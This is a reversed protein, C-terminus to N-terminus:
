SQKKRTDIAMRVEMERIAKQNAESFLHKQQELAAHLLTNSLKYDLQKAALESYLVNVEYLLQPSGIEEALRLAEKLAPASKDLQGLKLYTAGIQQEVKQLLIRDTAPNLLKRARVLHHIAEADQGSETAIEALSKLVHALIDKFGHTEATTMAERLYGRAEPVKELLFSSDALFILTSAVHRDDSLDRGIAVSRQFYDMAVVNEGSRQFIAGVNTLVSSELYPDPFTQLLELCSEFAQLAQKYDGIRIYVIGWSNWIRQLVAPDNNAQALPLARAFFESAKAFDGTASHVTGVAQLAKPLDETDEIEEFLEAARGFADLAGLLNARQRIARGMEMLSQGMMKKDNALTAMDLVQRAIDLARESDSLYLGSIEHLMRRAQALLEGPIKSFSGPSNQGESQIPGPM